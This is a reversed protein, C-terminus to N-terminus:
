SYTHQSVLGPSLPGGTLKPGQPTRRRGCAQFTGLRGTEGRGELSQVGCPCVWTAGWVGPCRCPGRGHCAHSKDVNGHVRSVPPSSPWAHRTEGDAPLRSLTWACRFPWSINWPFCVCACVRVCGARGARGRVCEPMYTHIGHWPSSIRPDHGGRCSPQGHLPPTVPGIRGQASDFFFLRGRCFAEATSRGLLAALGSHAAPDVTATLQTAHM